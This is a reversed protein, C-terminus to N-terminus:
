SVPLPDSLQRLVPAPNVQSVLRVDIRYSGPALKASPLTVTSPAPGGRLAGRTAVVPRGAADDLTVLYLCDRECGLQVPTAAGSVLQDPYTLATTQVPMQMGPCVVLGRQASAAAAAIATADTLNDLIVGALAATCAAGTITAPAPALLGDLVVPPPAPAFAQQLQPLNAQTWLGTAPQPAPRFLVVDPVILRALATATAKPVFSGDLMAGLQVGPLAAHVADGIAALAAGYDAVAGGQVLAVVHIAPVQQILSVAYAALAARGADDTPLAALEVVISEGVPSRQLAAVLGPDPTTAGAPWAIGVRIARLGLRQADAGQSPDAVGAGVFFSPLATVAASTKRVSGAQGAASARVIPLAELDARNGARDVAVVKVPYIGPRKPQPWTLTHWGDAMSLRRSPGAASTVSVVSPKSLWFSVQGVGASALKFAPPQKAYLAFRKAADAFRQDAPALKTLLQVVYQQYELDSYDRPLAYYTWYGTDFRALTAAASKEMRQALDAAAGDEADTAYSALSIVAQLQANLVPTSQFSYLRIWPGAAVNTLLRGPIAAYAAHAARSYAPTEDSVLNAARAFAQAAVAQAMGSIWPPRGGSFAFYYEWGVGGGPQYIGRAVLADALRKTGDVDNAAIRANLAGFNALPHFELCRGAFYRYVVGDADTVDTKPAPPWHKAFYDDNARLEGFLAVARPATLRGDFAAVELLAVNIARARDRPLHRILYAARRIEARYAAADSPELKAGAKKVAELAQKQGPVVSTAPAASALSLAAACAAVTLVLGRVFTV